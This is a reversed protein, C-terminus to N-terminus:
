IFYQPGYNVGLVLDKYYTYVFWAREGKEEGGMRKRNGRVEEEHYVERLIM